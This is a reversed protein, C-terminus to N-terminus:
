PLVGSMIGTIKSFSLLDFISGRSFFFNRDPGLYVKKWNASVIRLSKALLILFDYASHRYTAPRTMSFPPLEARVWVFKYCINVLHVPVFVAKQIYCVARKLRESSKYALTMKTKTDLGLIESTHISKFNIIMLVSTQSPIGHLPASATIRFENLPPRSM